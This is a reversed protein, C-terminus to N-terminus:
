ADPQLYGLLVSEFLLVFLVYVAFIGGLWKLIKMM